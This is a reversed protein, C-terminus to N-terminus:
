EHFYLKHFREAAQRLMEVNKVDTTQKCKMAYVLMEHLAALKKDYDPTDFKIRQTMFYQTVIHQLENAHEEKNTVWRVLQNANGGKELEVIKTMSKEITGAHEQILSMRVEDDYIGCPIECHAFANAAVFLLASSLIVLVSMRYKM